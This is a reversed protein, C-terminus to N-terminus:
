KNPDTKALRRYEGPPVNQLRKFFANFYCENKFGLSTAIQALDMDTTTLLECASAIKQAHIYELLTMGTKQKFIRGLYKTNFYCLTAVENCTFFIQPNDNVYGMAQRVRRDISEEASPAPTSDAFISMLCALRNRILAPTMASKREFEYIIASIDCAASKSIAFAVAGCKKISDFAKEGDDVTWAIALRQAGVSCSIMKHKAGKAFVIGQGATLSHEKQDSKYIFQGDLVFHAEFFSHNHRIAAAKNGSECETIARAWVISANFPESIPPIFLSELARATAQDFKPM